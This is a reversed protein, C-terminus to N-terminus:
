IRRESSCRIINRGNTQRRDTERVSAEVFVKDKKKRKTASDNYLHHKKLVGIFIVDFISLAIVIRCLLLKLNNFFLILLSTTYIYIHM